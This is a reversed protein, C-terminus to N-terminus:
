VLSYEGKFNTHLPCNIVQFILADKLLKEMVNMEM